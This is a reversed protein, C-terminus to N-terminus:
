VSSDTKATQGHYYSDYRCIDQGNQITKLQSTLRKVFPMVIDLEDRNGENLIDNVIAYLHHYKNKDPDKCYVGSGLTYLYISDDACNQRSDFAKLLRSSYEQDCLSELVNGM